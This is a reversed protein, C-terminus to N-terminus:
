SRFRFWTRLKNRLRHFCSQCAATKPEQEELWIAVAFVDATMVIFDTDLESQYFALRTSTAVRTKKQYLEIARHNVIWKSNCIRIQDRKGMVRGARPHLLLHKRHCFNRCCCPTDAGRDAPHGSPTRGRVGSTNVYTRSIDLKPTCPAHEPLGKGWVCGPM